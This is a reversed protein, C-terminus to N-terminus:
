KTEPCYSSLSPLVALLWRSRHVPRAFKLMSGPGVVSTETEVPKVLLRVRSGSLSLLRSDTMPFASPKGSWPRMTRASGFM